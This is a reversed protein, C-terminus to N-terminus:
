NQRLQDRAARVYLGAALWQRALADADPMTLRGFVDREGPHAAEALATLLDAGAALHSRRLAAVDARVGAQAGPATLTLRGGAVIREHRRTLADLPDPAQPLHPYNPPSGSPRLFTPSLHDLGLDAHGAYEEPLDIDEGGVALLELTRPQTPSRRGVALLRLGPADALIRLNDRFAALPTPPTTLRVPNGTQDVALM